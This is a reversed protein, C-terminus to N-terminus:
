KKYIFKRECLSGAKNNSEFAFELENDMLTYRVCQDTIPCVEIINDM